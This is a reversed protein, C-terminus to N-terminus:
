RFTYLKLGNNYDAVAVPAGRLKKLQDFVVGGDKNAGEMDKEMLLVRGRGAVLTTLSGRDADVVTPVGKNTNFYPRSLGVAPFAAPLAVTDVGKRERTEYYVMGLAAENPYALVIDGPKANVVVDRYLDRLNETPTHYFAYDQVLCLLVALALAGNRLVPNRLALIGLATLMVYAPAMWEFTRPVFVPRFVYSIFFLSGVPVVLVLLAYLSLPNRAKGYAIWAIAILVLSLLFVYKGGAAQTYPWTIMKLSIVAWFGTSVTQSEQLIIPVCPAWILLAIVLACVLTRVDALKFRSFLMVAVFLGIWNGFIIFAATNHLWLSIGSSVGLLWIVQWNGALPGQERPDVVRRKLFIVSALIMVTCFLTEIAYPRAQQAYEINGQNVALLVAAFLGVKDYQRGFGALRPAALLIVVTVLSALVSWGRLGAESAGSIGMGLKLISYYFPPHTEYFPTKTWLDHWSLSAFWHSYAEDTWLSRSSLTHLRMALAIAVVIIALVMFRSSSRTGDVREIKDKHFATGSM